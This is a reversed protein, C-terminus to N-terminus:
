PSRGTIKPPPPPVQADSRRGDQHGANGPRPHTGAGSTPLYVRFTAGNGERSDVTLSGGHQNVIIDYSISLGLGTGKGRPKTTVFPDFISDRIATPIGPGDDRVEVCVNPGDEFTRIAILGEDERAQEAIAHAANVVLNLFVQNIKGPQCEVPPLNKGYDVVVKCHYKYENRAIVLASQVGENVDWLERVDHREHRAFERMGALIRTIREFGDASETFLTDLDNLIFDLRTEREKTELAAVDSALAPHSAAKERLSRYDAILDSFIAVDAQLAAFNNMLFGVPNNIEHAIGATMRGIAELRLAQRLQAEREVTDTIDQVFGFSRVVRGDADREHLCKEHVVRVEGTDLRIMRHELDYPYGPEALSRAYEAEVRSRDDPHVTSLFGEYSESFTSRDLGFIRYTEDSWLLRDEGRHYEWSGLHAIQQSQNLQQQLRAQAVEERKRQEENAELARNTRELMEVTRALEQATQRARAAETMALRTREAVAQELRAQHDHLLQDSQRRDLVAALIDAAVRLVLPVFEPWVREENVSDFGIFGAIAPGRALPVAIISMIDQAQLIDREASAEPPLDKVRPVHITEGNRLRQIWWPFLDAPQNKLNEIQPTIGEACWEHTNDMMGDDRLLFVYARHARVFRGLRGLAETIGADVDQWPLNVLGKSILTIEMQFANWREKAQRAAELATIDTMVTLFAPIGQNDIVEGNFLGTIVRGERTRVPLEVDSVKGSRALEEAIRRQTEPDPFLGLQESTRGLVEERSYGLTRLFAANVDTFTRDPIRSVAMLAPNDHFLRDFKQLAAEQASVDKSLGFVCDKGDWQGFWIRSEVRLTRGDRRQLPLSCFARAGGLMDKLVKEAEARKSPPHLDLIHRGRLEELPYGLLRTTAANAHILTGDPQAVVVIDGVADFFTRFNRESM